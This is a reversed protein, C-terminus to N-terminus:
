EGLGASFRDGDGPQVIELKVLEDLTDQDIGARAAAEGRSFDTVADVRRTSRPEATM